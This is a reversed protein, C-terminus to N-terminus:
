EIELMRARTLAQLEQLTYDEPMPLDPIHKSLMRVPSEGHLMLFTRLLYASTKAMEAQCLRDKSNHCTLGKVRTCLSMVNPQLEELDYAAPQSQKLEELRRRINIFDLFVKGNSNWNLIGISREPPALEDLYSKLYEDNENIIADAAIHRIVVTHGTNYHGALIWHTAEADHNGEYRARTAKVEHLWEAPIHLKEILFQERENMEEGVELHRQLVSMVASYRQYSNRIHLLVFASWHWLGLTELQSAFSVHISDMHYDSLHTYQLAQLIQLLNWSLRFDLHSATSSTPSLLAELSYTKDVYLCMLHYSTDFINENVDAGEEELYPPLPAACYAKYHKNGQFGQQYLRLASQISSNPPSKYWLHLALARKWDLDDCSNIEQDRCCWVLEGALLCYIKLRLEDIFQSADLEAWRSLQMSIMQRTITNGAAEALLLALRHDRGRQALMCAESIERVTLKSFVAKMHSDTSIIPSAEMEVAVKSSSADSLWQSLAERRLQKERYIEEKELDPAALLKGWLAVCLCLVRKMQQQFASDPHCSMDSLGSNVCEALQHLAEVGPQPVFLPCRDEESVQSQDLHIKLMEEQQKWVKVDQFDMYEAIQIQEIHAVWSKLQPVTKVRGRVPPLISVDETDDEPLGLLNGSHAVTWSPGWGIRFSRGMFCAADALPEQNRYLLSDKVHLIGHRVRTGVIRPPLDKPQLGSPILKHEMIPPHLFTQPVPRLMDKANSIDFVGSKGLSVPEYGEKEHSEKDSFAPSQPLSLMAPHKFSGFLGTSVKGSKRWVSSMDMDYYNANDRLLKEEKKRALAELGEMGDGFFSAKMGQINKSSIGMSTALYKSDMSSDPGEDDLFGALRRKVSSEVGYSLDFEDDGDGGGGLMNDDDDDNQMNHDDQDAHLVDQTHDRKLLSGQGKRLEGKPKTVMQPQQQVNLKQVLLVDKSPHAALLLKQQDTLEDEDSDDLLGYKSFHNVQFVWSGTEPRYDIFKGGIKGTTEEIKETYNMLKLREPSKIPNRNSKDTPWVCDLTIEAKKNLGQGLPPKKSDDPYVVVERRRFHVIEDINLGTVDTTGPFFINGFGDRGITLDEVVCNGNEDIFDIMDDLSPITYYGPRTMTVGTPHPTSRDVPLCSSDLDSTSLFSTTTDAASLRNGGHNTNADMKQHLAAISDDLNTNQNASGHRAPPTKQDLAIGEAENDLTNDHNYASLPRTIQTTVLGNNNSSDDLRSTVDAEADSLVSASGAISKNLTKKGLVLKKVSKRPVFTDDGFSFDEDELGDFLQAKGGSLLNHLSKPKIKTTPRPSVKPRNASFLAAKQANPNTPKLADDRRDKSQQKLNWFLPNDGYPSSALALLHQSSNAQSPASAGIGLTTGTGMNLGGLSNNTGGLTSGFGTSGSAGSGFTFGSGFAPKAAAAGFTSTTTGAGLGSGFGFSTGGTGLGTTATGFGTPKINSFLGGSSAGGFGATSTNTGFGFSSTSSAPKAFLSGGTGFGISPTTATGFGQPKPAGFLGGGTAAAGFGVQNTTGSASAGFFSSGGTLTPQTATTGGFLPRAPSGFLSTSPQTGTSSGFGFGSQTTTATGFLPRNQNFPTTAASSTSGFTGFGTTSTQLGSGLGGGFVFGTSAPTTATSGFLGVTSTSGAQKAKRNATYDEIRLEELSKNEYEKMATICQHKTNINTTVGSKMMTDQGNPPNFAITTGVAAIAASAGGFASTASTQGFLTSTAGTNTGFLGGSPQVASSTGFGAFGGPRAGFGTGTAPTSFLSSTGTSTQSTGGFLGGTNSNNVSSGFSFGSSAQPQGFATGGVSGFLGGGKNATTGSAGGGFLSGGAVPTQMGFTSGGGFGTSTSSTPFGPPVYM